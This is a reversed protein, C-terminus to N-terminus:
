NTKGGRNKRGPRRCMCCPRGRKVKCYGQPRNKKRKCAARCRQNALNRNVFMGSCISKTKKKRAEVTMALAFLLLFLLALHRM